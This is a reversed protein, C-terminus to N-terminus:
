GVSSAPLRQAEGAVARCGKLCNCMFCAAVINDASNTGGRSLPVVHEITLRHFGFFSRCYFCCGRARRLILLWEAYILTSLVNYRRARRRHASILASRRQRRLIQHVKRRQCPKCTDATWRFSKGGVTFLGGEFAALPKPTHCEICTKSAM